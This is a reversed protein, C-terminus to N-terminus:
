LILGQSFTMKDMILMRYVKSYAGMIKYAGVDLLHGPLFRWFNFLRETTKLAGSFPFQKNSFNPTIQFLQHFIQFNNPTVRPM